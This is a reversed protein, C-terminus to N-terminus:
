KRTVEYDKFKHLNSNLKEISHILKNATENDLHIAKNIKTLGSELEDMEKELHGLDPTLLARVFLAMYSWLFLSGILMMGISLIKGPTTVPVVVGYGITTMLGTSWSLCDLFSQVEPNYNKELYYFLISSLLTIGHGFVTLAWFLPQHILFYVRRWIARLTRRFSVKM